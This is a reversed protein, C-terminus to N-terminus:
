NVENFASTRGEDFAEELAAKIAWVAQESFDLKDSGRKELTELGLHERAIQLLTAEM